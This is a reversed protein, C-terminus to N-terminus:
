RDVSCKDANVYSLRKLLEDVEQSREDRAVLSALWERFMLNLTTNRARAEGRALEILEGDASFTIKKM